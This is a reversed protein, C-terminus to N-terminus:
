KTCPGIHKGTYRVAMQLTQDGKKVSLRSSGTYATEAFTISGSGSMPTKGKCTMKWTVVNGQVKHDKIECGGDGGPIMKQPDQLDKHSICHQVTTPTSARGKPEEVQATVEWLGEKMNPMAAHAAGSLVLMGSILVLLRSLRM